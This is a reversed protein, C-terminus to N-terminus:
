GHHIREKLEMAAKRSADTVRGSAMVALERIMGENDLRDTHTFTQQDESDKRVCYHTDAWAAVSPLHTVCLVQYNESIIHMKQGMSYAVKGSVGTDIEDFLITEIGSKNQFVVKLALMLRPLEGGSATDKLPSFPQGLNMSVMFAIEDLGDASEKKPRREIKFRAHELMLDHCHAEIQRSLSEFVAIREKSLREAATDYKKQMDQINKNLKGLINERQLIRSIKNDMDQKANMLSDYSGGYKRYMSRIAYERAQMTDLDMADRQMQQSLSEIQEKIEDLRYYMEHIEETLKEDIPLQSLNRYLQYASDIMGQEKNLQHISDSYLDMYKEAQGAQKISNQLQELEDPKVNLDEIKNLQMTLYDLEDDSLTEKELKTYEQKLQNLKDYYEKVNKRLSETNAYADLLDLQIEPKMLEYTDMQSHIDIIKEMLSRVFGLTTMQQNIRVTSKGNTRIVRQILIQDETEFDNEELFNQIQPDECSIVMQLVAKEKGQRVVNGTIRQGCLYGIADILLSKGAGTEGTIVTMGNTFDLSAHDFLIYDKVTLQEIM